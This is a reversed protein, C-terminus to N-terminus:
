ARIKTKPVCLNAMALGAARDIGWEPMGIESLGVPIGLRRAFDYLGAATDSSGLIEAIRRDRRRQSNAM